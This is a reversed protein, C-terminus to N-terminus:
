TPIPMTSAVICGYSDDQLMLEDPTGSVHYQFVGPLILTGDVVPLLYRTDARM